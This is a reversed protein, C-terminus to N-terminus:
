YQQTALFLDMASIQEQEQKPDQKPEQKQEQKIGQKIGQKILDLSKDFTYKIPDRKITDPLYMGTEIDFPNELNRDLSVEYVPKNIFEILEPTKKMYEELLKIKKEIYEQSLKNLIYKTLNNYDTFVMIGNNPKKDSEDIIYHPFWITLLNELNNERSYKKALEDILQLKDDTKIIKLNKLITGFGFTDSQKLNFENLFLNSINKENKIFIEYISLKTKTFFDINESQNIFNNFFDVYQNEFYIVCPKKKYSLYFLEINSWAGFPAIMIAGDTFSSLAPTDDGWHMGFFVDVDTFKNKDFRGANCMISIIPKEYKKAIEYGTRTVGCVNVYNGSFGGTIFGLNCNRFLLNSFIENTRNYSDIAATSIDAKKFEKLLQRLVSKQLSTTISKIDTLTKRSCTENVSFRVKGLIALFNTKKSIYYSYMYKILNNVQEINKYPEKNILEIYNENYETNILTLNSYKFLINTDSPLEPSIEKKKFRNTNEREQESYDYNIKKPDAYIVFNTFGTTTFFLIQLCYKDVTVWIYGMGMKELQSCDGKVWIDSIGSDQNYFMPKLPKCQEYGKLKNFINLIKFIIDDRYEEKTKGFLDYLKIGRHEYDAIFRIIIETLKKVIYGECENNITYQGTSSGNIFIIPINQELDNDCVQKSGGLKLNIYKRKYKNYKNKFDM